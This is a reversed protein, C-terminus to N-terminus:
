GLCCCAATAAQWWPPAQPAPRAAGACCCGAAATVGVEWHAAEYGRGGGGGVGGWRYVELKDLAAKLELETATLRRAAEASDRQMRRFDQPSVGETQRKVAALERRLEAEKQQSLARERRLSFLEERLNRV